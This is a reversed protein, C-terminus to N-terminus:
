TPSVPVYRPRSVMLGPAATVVSLRGRDHQERRLM